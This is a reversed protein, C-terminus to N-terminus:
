ETTEQEAMARATDKIKQAQEAIKLDLEPNAGFLADFMEMAMPIHPFEKAIEDQTARISDVKKSWSQTNNKETM